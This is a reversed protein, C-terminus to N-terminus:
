QNVVKVGKPPQPPTTDRNPNADRFVFKVADAMVPGDANNNIAVHSNRGSAFYYTGLSNWKGWNQAQNLSIVKEGNAHKITYPVNTGERVAEPAEGFYGHWEFVEYYGPVGISPRFVALAEGSGPEARAFGYFDFWEACRVTYFSGGDDCDSTWAGSLEASQSAPSTGGDINDVVVDAVVSKPEKLLIVADGNTVKNGDGLTTTAGFLTASSFQQGNNIQPDQGGRFAYYPGDYGNRSRLEAETVTVPAGGANLIMAGLDFFRIWIFPRIEQPPGKPYGLDLDYEDYYKTYYHEGAEVDTFSLYGDGLLACGLLFRMLRFDNKSPNPTFPM